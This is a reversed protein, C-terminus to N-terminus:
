VFKWRKNRREKLEAKINLEDDHKIEQIL